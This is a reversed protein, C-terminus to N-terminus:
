NESNLLAKVVVSCPTENNKSNRLQCHNYFDTPYYASLPINIKAPTADNNQLNFKDDFLKLQNTRVTSFLADDNDISNKLCIYKIKGRGSNCEIPKDQQRDMEQNIQLELEVQSSYVNEPGVIQVYSIFQLPANKASLNVTGISTPEIGIYGITRVLNKIKDKKDALNMLHIMADHAAVAGAAHGGFIFHVQSCYALEFKKNKKANKNSIIDKVKAVVEKAKALYLSSSLKSSFYGFDHDIIDVFYGEQALANALNVYGKVNNRAGIGFVIMKCTSNKKPELYCDTQADDSNKDLLMECSKITQTKKSLTSAYALIPQCVQFTLFIVPILAYIKM